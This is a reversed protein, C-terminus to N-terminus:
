TAWDVYAEETRKSYHLLPIKGRLQDLLKPPQSTQSNTPNASM